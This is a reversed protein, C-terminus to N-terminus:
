LKITQRLQMKLHTKEKTENKKKNQLYVIFIFRAQSHCQCQMFCHKKNNRLASLFEFFLTLNFHLNTSTERSLFITKRKFIFNFNLYEYIMQTISGTFFRTFSSPFFENMKRKKKSFSSTVCNERLLNTFEQIYSFTNKGSKRTERKM